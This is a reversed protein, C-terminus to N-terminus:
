PTATPSPTPTETEVASPTVDGTAAASPTPTTTRTATPRFRTRTATPTITPTSTQTPTPVTPTATVAGITVEIQSPLVNEARLKDSLFIVQPTIQYSGAALGTLDAVVRVDQLSLADLLPLPGLILIDVSDPSAIAGMGPPLGRIELPRQVTLSYEIAAVNVEVLVSDAGAVNPLLELPVRKVIDASAGTIDLPVTDIFGALRQVLAPDSSSLTVIPPTVKINTVQYGSALQGTIVVKVAVDRFGQKQNVPIKIQVNAPTLTVRPVVNGSADVPIIPAQGSFDTRLGDLSIRAQCFSVDSVASAPGQLTVQAPNIQPADAAYGLALTGIPQVIVPCVRSASQELTVTISQPDTHTVEASDANVAGVLGVSHTGPLLGGLDAVVQIQQATLTLWVQQPAKVTVTARNTVNGTLITNPPTNILTIPVSQPFTKEQIPNVENLAVVWVLIALVLSVALTGLVDWIRRGM